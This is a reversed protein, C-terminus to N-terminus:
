WSCLLVLLLWVMPSFFRSVMGVAATTHPIRGLHRGQLVGSLFATLHQVAM